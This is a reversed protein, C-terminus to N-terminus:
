RFMISFVKLVMKPFDFSVVMRKMGIQRDTDIPSMTVSVINHILQPLWLSCRTFIGILTFVSVAMLVPPM